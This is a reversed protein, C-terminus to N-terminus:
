KKKEKTEGWRLDEISLAAFYQYREIEKASLPAVSIATDLYIRERAQTNYKPWAPLEGANPTGTKALNTWYSMMQASLPAAKRAAKKPLALRLPATRLHLKLNGFVLPIELGHFAGLTQGWREDDWDFRYLYVPTYPSLEEAAAFARSGFGDAFLAGILFAPKRYDDFSYLALMEDARQGVTKHLTKTLMSRSAFMAGPMLLLAMNFEDKNSGVLVPVRNFEGTKFVDIPKASLVYGDVQASANFGATAPGLLKWVLASRLCDVVDSGECGAARAFKRGQEFGKEQTLVLDCGGSEIVGQQFLGAALPSALLNCVAVGGASEGFITANNPDGGFGSINARVWNLAAIIDLMGYNGTSHNPDEAALEPLALFGLVGLRYNITVVVVEREAALRAGDYMEYSGAGQTFGGGHIWFMVPFTGSRAPRYINLYLCDESFVKSKGGGSFSEDQICSPGFAKAKLVGTRAAPPRPAQWRLEDEPPAAYPIGKYSCAALGPEAAGAVQGQETAVPVACLDEAALVPAALLWALGLVWFKIMRAKEKHM